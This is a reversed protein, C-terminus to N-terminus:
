PISRYMAMATPNTGVSWKRIVNGAEIRILTGDTVYNGADGVWVIGNQSFVSYWQSGSPAPVHWLVQGSVGDIFDVGGSHVLAVNGTIPDVSLAKRGHRLVRWEEKLSPIRLKVLGGASDAQSPYHHWAAYVHSKSPGVAIAAVNPFGAAASVVSLDVQNLLVITGALPESKRFDGFGTNAVAIYNGAAAIGEPAPGVRLAPVTVTMTQPDVECIADTSRLTVYAVSDSAFSIKFPEGLAEMNLEGTLKGTRLDIKLLRRSVSVVIWCTDGRVVVDSGTDGLRRGSNFRRFIEREVIMTEAYLVDLESNDQRWIGECLVLLSNNTLAPPEGTEVDVPTPVCALMLLFCVTSIYLSTLVTATQCVLLRETRIIWDM